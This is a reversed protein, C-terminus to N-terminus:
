YFAYKLLVSSIARHVLIKCFENLGKAFFPSDLDLASESQWLEADNQM